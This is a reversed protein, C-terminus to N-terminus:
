WCEFLSAQYQLTALYISLHHVLLTEDILRDELLPIVFRFAIRMLDKHTLDLRTPDLLALNLPARIEGLIVNLSRVVRKQFILFSCNNVLFQSYISSGKIYKFTSFIRTIINIPAAISYASYANHLATFLPLSHESQEPHELLHQLSM